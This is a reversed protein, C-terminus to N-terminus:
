ISSKVLFDGVETTVVDDDTTIVRFAYSYTGIPFLATVDEDIEITTKGHTPDTLETITLDVLPTTTTDKQVVFRITFGTISIVAGDKKVTFTWKFTDGQVLEIM